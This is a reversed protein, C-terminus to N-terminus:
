AGLTALVSQAAHYGCMGHVGGGPPTSSSCIFIDRAPTAYPDIRPAPRFFLQRLDSIGGNIDGGIYNANYANLERTNMTSRAIVLDRFGPAYAEVHSEIARTADFTSGNPVHCYAWAVHKGAPARSPDFLSPQAFIVFPREDIAGAHVARESRAVDDLTGSLHITGARACRPDRWPVPGRLAWDIKFVGPGYRFRELSRRYSAPFREGAISLLQRPTVDFVYARARPLEDLATVRQGLIVDGGLSRLKALLADTIARSGGRAIPWGVAHGSAALVIGFSMTALKELPIMAHAGVGALLAPVAIDQFRARAVGALSRFADLGFRALLMPHKPFKLPALIMDLLDDFREVYPEILRRYTEGDRGLQAVTDDISRALTVVRDPLVHVLPTPPQIWEVDLDLARFFPSALGLPHVTSCVDHLFGPATLEKTRTGGGITDDAEVVVTSLGACALAVATSLGNPGAGIVVVDYSTM